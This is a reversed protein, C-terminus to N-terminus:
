KPEGAAVVGAARNVDVVGDDVVVGTGGGEQAVRQMSRM